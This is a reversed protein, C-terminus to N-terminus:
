VAFGKINTVLEVLTRCGVKEKIHALHAEVTRRSRFVTNSIEQATKGELLHSLCELEKKSLQIQKGDKTIIHQYDPYDKDLLVAHATPAAILQLEKELTEIFQHRFQENEKSELNCCQALEVQWQTQSIAEAIGAVAVVENLENYLYFHSDKIWSIRDSEPTYIRYLVTNNQNPKEEEDPRRSKLLQVFQESNNGVLSDVWSEPHEYLNEFPRQWVTTYSPSLYLQKKYDPSRVWLVRHSAATMNAFLFNLGQVSLKVFSM